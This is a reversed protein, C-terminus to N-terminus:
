WSYHYSCNPSQTLSHVKNEDWDATLPHLSTSNLHVLQLAGPMHIIITLFQQKQLSTHQLRGQKADNNVEDKRGVQKFSLEQNAATEAMRTKAHVNM